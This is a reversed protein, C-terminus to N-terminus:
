PAVITDARTLPPQGAAGPRITLFPREVLLYLVVGLLTILPTAILFLKVFHWGDSQVDFIPWTGMVTLVPLHWLFISYGVIGYLRFPLFSVCRRIWRPGALVGVILAGVSLAMAMRMTAFWWDTNGNRGSEYMVVLMGLAGLVAAFGLWPNSGTHGAASRRIWWGAITIGIGFEGIFAPYQTALFYRIQSVPVGLHDVQDYYYQVIGHMDTRALYAFGVSFVISVPLAIRWRGKVFAVVLVPLTVYFLMEITLTWLSGNVAAFSGASIPFLYQVFFIHAIVQRVGDPGGVAEWPITANTMLLLMLLLMFWYPPVIRLFRRIAYIRVSPRPRGHVAARHWPMSLLLGSLVFFTDVGLGAGSLVDGFSIDFGLPSANLPKSGAAYWTHHIFVCFVATARVTDLAALRDDDTQGPLFLRLIASRVPTAAHRRQRVVSGRALIGGM